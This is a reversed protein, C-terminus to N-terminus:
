FTALSASFISVILAQSTRFIQLSDTLKRSILTFKVATVQRRPFLDSLKILLHLFLLLPDLLAVIFLHALEGAALLQVQVKTAVEHIIDDEPLALLVEVENDLLKFATSRADLRVDLDTDHVLGFQLAHM